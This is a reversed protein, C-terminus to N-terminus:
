ANAKIAGLVDTTMPPDFFKEVAEGNKFLIIDCVPTRCDIGYDVGVHGMKLAHLKVFKVTPCYEAYAEFLARMPICPQYYPHYFFAAVLGDYQLVEEFQEDSTVEDVHTEQCEDDHEEPSSM